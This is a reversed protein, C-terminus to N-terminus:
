IRRDLTELVGSGNYSKTQNSPRSYSAEGGIACASAPGDHHPLAKHYTAGTGAAFPVNISQPRAASYGGPLALSCTLSHRDYM